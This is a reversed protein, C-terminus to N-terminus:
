DVFMNTQKKQDRQAYESPDYGRRILWEATKGTIVLPVHKLDEITTAGVLFMAIRIEKQLQNLYSIVGKEGHLYAQRLVPLAIGAANAGLALMKVITIGDRIGGTAIVPISDGVCKKTEVLSIATPIGWDWFTDGINPKGGTEGLRYSEVGAWSTGGAGGVDIGSVGAELLLGAELRSIGAGTEKAIIPYKSKACLERLSKIGGRFSTEGEPQITEQLANLHVVLADSGIIEQAELVTEIPYGSILQPLGINGLLLINPAYKRVQYTYALKPNELMPRQSGLGMGVRTKESAKALIKNIKLAEETGGTMGSIIIPSGLKKGFLEVNTDIEDISAEPLARHILHIDEAGTTKKRAEVPKKTVLRLHDDKRKGTIRSKDLM